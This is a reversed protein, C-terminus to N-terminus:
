APHPPPARGAVAGVSRGDPLVLDATVAAPATFAVPVFPDVTSEPQRSGSPAAHLSVAAPRQPDVTSPLAPTFGAGIIVACVAMALRRVGRRLRSPPPVVQM